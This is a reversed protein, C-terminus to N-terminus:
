VPVPPAHSDRWLGAPALAHRPTQGPVPARGRWIVPSPAASAEPTTAALPMVCDPCPLVLERPDDGSPLTVRILGDGTCIVMGQAGIMRAHASAHTVGSVALALALLPALLLPFPTLTARPM